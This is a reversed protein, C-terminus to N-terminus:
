DETLIFKEVQFLHKYLEYCEYLFRNKEDINNIMDKKAKFSSGEETKYVKYNGSLAPGMPIFALVGM